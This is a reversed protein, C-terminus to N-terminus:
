DPKEGPPDAPSRLPSDKDLVYTLVLRAPQEGVNKGAHVTGRLVTFHDGPAFFQKDKGAVELEIRGSEVYAIEIGPHTHWPITAGAPIDRTVVHVIQAAEEQPVEFALDIGPKPTPETVKITEQECGSIMALAPLVLLAIRLTHDRKGLNSM